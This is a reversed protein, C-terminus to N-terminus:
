YKIGVPWETRILKPGYIFRNKTDIFYDGPKGLESLPKSEGEYVKSPAEKLSRFLM